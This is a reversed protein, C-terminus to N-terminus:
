GDGRVLARRLRRASRECRELPGAVELGRRHVRVRGLNLTEPHHRGPYILYAESLDLATAYAVAQYVDAVEVPWRKWKADAVAVAVGARVLTVDPRLTLEPCPSFPRQPEADLCRAVHREFVQSLSVLVGLRGDGHDAGLWGCVEFLQEYGPPITEPWPEDRLSVGSWPVLARRLLAHTTPAFPTALLRHALAVPVRNCPLDVSREDPRSHLRAPSVERVQALVDLPGWLTAGKEHMERYVAHLGRRGVTELREAFVRVLGELPALPGSSVEPGPRVGLMWALNEAPLRACLQVVRRPTFLCGLYGGVRVRYIGREATVEVEVVGRANLRLWDVEDRHLRVRHDGRERLWLPRPASM